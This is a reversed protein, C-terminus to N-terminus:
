LGSVNVCFIPGGKPQASQWSPSGFNGTAYAVQVFSTGFQTTDSWVAEEYTVAEVTTTRQAERIVPIAVGWIGSTPASATLGASPTAQSGPWFNPNPSLDPTSAVAVIRLPDYDTNYVVVGSADRIALGYAPDVNPCEAFSYWDVNYGPAVCRLALSTGGAAVVTAGITRVVMMRTTHDLTIYQWDGTSTVMGKQRLVLNRNVSDFQLKGSASFFQLM